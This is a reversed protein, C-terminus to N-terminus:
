TRHSSNLRTSKRDSYASRRSTSISGASRSDTPSSASALNWIRGRFFIEVFAILAAFTTTEVGFYGLIAVVLIINLTVSVVTGLYRLLTPDVRQRETAPECDGIDDGSM